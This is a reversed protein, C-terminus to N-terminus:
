GNPTVWGSWQRPDDIFSELSQHPDRELPQLLQDGGLGLGKGYVAQGLPQRDGTKFDIADVVQGGAGGSHHHAIHLGSFGM